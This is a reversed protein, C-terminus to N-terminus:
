KMDIIEMDGSLLDVFTYSEILGINENISKRVVLVNNSVAEIIGEFQKEKSKNYNYRFIINKGVLQELERKLSEIDSKSFM